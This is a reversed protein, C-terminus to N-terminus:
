NYGPNQELKGDKNLDIETKPIPWLNQIKDTNSIAYSAELSSNSLSNNAAVFDKNMAARKQLQGTRMLTYRRNEEGILERAREDLIFDINIQSASVQGLLPSGFARTRLVNIAAAAESTKSLGLYAEALLLYTEGFRMMPVDHVATYGFTDNPDFSNWKTCYPPLKFISDNVADTGKFKKGNVYFNRHINAQSNRIDGAQYLNLMRSSLRMRALGRGGLSDSLVLGSSSYQYYAAVWCRRQQFSGSQGGTITNNNESEYNWIMEKNGQKRRMYGQAFMDHYYDSYSLGSRLTTNLAFKGSGIITNCADVAKQYEKTRICVEALLQYASYKNARSGNKVADPEPLNTTAYTLDTVIQANVESLSARTYDTKASSAPKLTLPVGGYFVALQDYCWARMFCAEAKYIANDSESATSAGSEVNEIIINAANIITYLQKWYVQPASADATLKEYKYMPVEIGQYQAPDCVDTGVQFACSFGQDNTYSHILSFDYYMGLALANMGKSDKLTSSTYNSMPTEDLYNSNCSTVAIMTLGALALTIYNKKM